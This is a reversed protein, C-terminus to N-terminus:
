RSVLNVGEYELIARKVDLGWRYGHLDGAKGIIRHCPVLYAIPNGAVANSVARVATPVGASEALESYSLTEGERVQMLKEWVKLQFRTGLLLIEPPRRGPSFLLKRLVEATKEDDRRNKPNPWVKRFEELHTKPDTRFFSMHCIVEECIGILCKGFPSGHIGYILRMGSRAEKKKGSSIEKTNVVIDRWLHNPFSELVENDHTKVNMSQM